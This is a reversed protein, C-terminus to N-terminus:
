GTKVWSRRYTTLSAEVGGRPGVFVTIYKSIGGGGAIKIEFQLAGETARTLTWGSAAAVDVLDRVIDIQRAM